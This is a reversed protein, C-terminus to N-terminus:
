PKEDQFRLPEGILEKILFEKEDNRFKRYVLVKTAMKLPDPPVTVTPFAKDSIEVWDCYPGKPSRGQPNQYVVAYAVANKTIWKPPQPANAGWPGDV